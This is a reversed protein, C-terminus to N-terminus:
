PGVLNLNGALLEVSPGIVQLIPAPFIGLALTLFILPFFIWKELSTLDNLQKLSEKILDGFMVRRYLWLGYAASLIVGSAAGVATWSSVQFVGALTLFEGIFGSTGPLGINAMTFIMFIFAYVPMRIVVGGYADIERTHMREYIVGVILFLAASIFGHSIMQFIAGDIGQQNFSFIGMTVFGMHAVSSYAILKKM